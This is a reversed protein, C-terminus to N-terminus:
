KLDSKSKMKKRLHRQECLNPMAGSASKYANKKHFEGFFIKDSTNLLHITSIITKSVHPLWFPLRRRRCFKTKMKLDSKILNLTCSSGYVSFREVKNYSGRYYILVTWAMNWPSDSWQANRFHRWLLHGQGSTVDRFYTRRMGPNKGHKKRRVITTTCFTGNYM